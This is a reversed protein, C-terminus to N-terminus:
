SLWDRRDNVPRHARVWLYADDMTLKHVLCLYRVIVMPSRDVGALCHVVIPHGAPIALIWQAAKEIGDLSLHGDGNSVKIGGLEPFLDERVNLVHFEPIKRAIRGAEIDGLWLNPLIPHAHTGFLGVFELLRSV